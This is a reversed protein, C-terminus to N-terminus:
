SSDGEPPSEAAAEAKNLEGKKVFPLWLQEAPKSSMGRGSGDDGRVTRAKMGCLVLVLIGEASKEWATLTSKEGRWGTETARSTGPCM